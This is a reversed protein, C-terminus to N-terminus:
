QEREMGRLEGAHRHDQFDHGRRIMHQSPEDAIMRGTSCNVNM